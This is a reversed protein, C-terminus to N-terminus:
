GGLWGALLWLTSVASGLLCLPSLWLTPSMRKVVSQSPDAPDHYITIKEGASLSPWNQDVNGGFSYQSGEYQHGGSKFRYRCKMEDYRTPRGSYPGVTDIIFSHDEVSRIRAEAKVWRFSRLSQRLSSRDSYTLCSFLCLSAVVFLMVFGSRLDKGPHDGAAFVAVLLAAGVTAAIALTFIYPSIRRIIGRMTKRVEARRLEPLRRRDRSGLHRLALM